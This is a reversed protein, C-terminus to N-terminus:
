IKKTQINTSESKDNVVLLSITKGNVAKLKAMQLSRHEKEMNRAKKMIEMMLIEMQVSLNAKETNGAKKLIDKIALVMMLSVDEMDMRIIIRIFAMQIIALKIIMNRVSARFNVM